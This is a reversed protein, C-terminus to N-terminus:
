YVPTVLGTGGVTVIAKAQRNAILAVYNYLRILVGMSDAYTASFAEVRPTSEYLFLDDWKAGIIIDQNTGAGLNTPIQADIIVPLGHLSGVVSQSAVRDIVGAANTPNFAESLFLPRNQTDFSAVMWAWRNPHMCWATIPAYRTTDVAQKAKALQAYLKGSGAVAPSADTYTVTNISAVGLVGALQGSAGSGSLCQSDLQKAYDAALDAMIVDDLGVTSSQDILQQSLVMKGGITSISSSVSTTVLDQSSLGTNQSAQIGTLSGTSIKPLNISSVGEPLPMANMLDATPRAPRALKVYSETLWAPPAFEGGAGGGAGITSTQGTNSLARVERDNRELRQLSDRNGTTRAQFLDRFYSAGSVDHKRYTTSENVSFGGVVSSQTMGPHGTARSSAAAADRKAQSLLEARRVSLADIQAVHADFVRTEDDTLNMGRSEAAEILATAARRNESIKAEVNDLLSM